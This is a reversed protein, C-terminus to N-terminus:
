LHLPFLSLFTGQPDFGCGKPACSSAQVWHAVPRPLFVSRKCFTLLLLCRLAPTNETKWCPPRNRGCVPRVRTGSSAQQTAAPPPLPMFVTGQKRWTQRDEAGDERIGVVPVPSTRHEPNMAHPVKELCLPTTPAGTFSGRRHPVAKTLEPNRTNTEHSHSDGFYFRAVYLNGVRVHDSELAGGPPWM